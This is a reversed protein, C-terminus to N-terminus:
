AKAKPQLAQATKRIEERFDRVDSQLAQLLKLRHELDRIREEQLQKVAGMTVWLGWSLLALWAILVCVWFVIMM